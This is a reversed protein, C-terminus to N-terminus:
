RLEYYDEKEGCVSYGDGVGPGNLCREEVGYFSGGEELGEVLLM